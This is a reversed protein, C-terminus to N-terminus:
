QKLINNYENLKNKIKFLFETQSLNNSSLGKKLLNSSFKFNFGNKKHIFGIDIDPNGAVLMILTESISGIPKRDIHSRQFKATITTGKGKVTNISLSGNASEASYKLLPIGLGIKRTNRTTVFPDTVMNKFKKDMGKGNDSIKLTLLDKKINEDILIDIRKAGANISNEAIDLIHLSLDKM